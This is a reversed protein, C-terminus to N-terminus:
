KLDVREPVVGSLRGPFFGFKCYMDRRGDRGIQGLLRGTLQARAALPTTEGFPLLAIM